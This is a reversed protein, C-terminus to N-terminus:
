RGTMTAPSGGEGSLTVPISTHCGAMIRGYGTTVLSPSPTLPTSHLFLSGGTNLTECNLWFHELQPM